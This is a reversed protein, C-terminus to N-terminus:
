VSINKTRLTKGFFGASPDTETLSVSHEETTKYVFKITTKADTGACDNEINLAQKHYDSYFVKVTKRSGTYECSILYPSGQKDNKLHEQITGWADSVLEKESTFAKVAEKEKLASLQVSLISVGIIGLGLM